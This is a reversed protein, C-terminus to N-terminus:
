ISTDPQEEEIPGDGLSAERRAQEESDPTQEEVAPVDDSRREIDPEEGFEEPAPATIHGSTPDFTGRSGPSSDLDNTPHAGHEPSTDTM